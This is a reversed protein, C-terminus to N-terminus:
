GPSSRCRQAWGCRIRNLQSEQGRHAAPSHSIEVHAAWGNDAVRGTGGGGGRTSTCVSQVFKLLKAPHKRCGGDIPRRRDGGTPRLGPREVAPRSKRKSSNRRGAKQPATRGCRRRRPREASGRSEPLEEIEQIEPAAAATELCRARGRRARQTHGSLWLRPRCFSRRKQCRRRSNRRISVRQSSTVRPQNIPARLPNPSPTRGAAPLLDEYSGGGKKRALPNVAAGMAVPFSLGRRETGGRRYDVRYGRGEISRLARRM